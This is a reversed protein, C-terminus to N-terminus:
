RPKAVNGPRKLAPKTKHSPPYMEERMKQMEERNKQMERTMQAFADVLKRQTEQLAKVEARLDRLEKQTTDVAAASKKINKIAENKDYYSWESM